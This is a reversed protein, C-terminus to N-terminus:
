KTRDRPGLNFHESLLGESTISKTEKHNEATGGDKSYGVVAKKWLWEL